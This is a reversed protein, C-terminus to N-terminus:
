ERAMASRVSRAAAEILIRDLEERPAQFGQWPGNSDAGFPDFRRSGPWAVWTGLHRTFGAALVADAVGLQAFHLEV